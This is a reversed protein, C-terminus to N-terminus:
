SPVRSLLSQASSSTSSPSSSSSCTTSASDSRWSTPCNVAFLFGSATREGVFQIDDSYYTCDNENQRPILPIFRDIRPQSYQRTINTAKMAKGAFYNTFNKGHSM